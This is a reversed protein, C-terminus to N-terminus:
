LRDCMLSVTQTDGGGGGGGGIHRYISPLLVVSSLFPVHVNLFDFQFFFIMLSNVYRPTSTGDSLLAHFQPRWFVLVVM